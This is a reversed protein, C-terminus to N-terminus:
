QGHGIDDEGSRSPTDGASDTPQGDDGDLQTAENEAAEGASREPRQGSSDGDPTAESPSDARESGGTTTPEPTDDPANPSVAPVDVADLAAQIVDAKETGEITAETTLVLRHSMTANALRKVDDPTSYRRGAIVASARVAEFVRQVGRPSVGIETRDDERTARALDVIYRRVKTDVRIDEACEQLARVTEPDVVPDVSPSLTRRNARRDLLGMEGEVDPYAMSTKVSFRDRQAEPLQFTGEQEIPNQTAIVVFPTPLPHTTGDVSVQREEMSELLASQTKPPARNIEDALVVNSFVPGQAFEFEREHENYVNSGTVDAPLLDPTFQIRTFELGLAEALVRALATKGTGPVDEVLVHGRAIVGALTEFLVRREVVVAEEVREVINLCHESASAVSLDSSLGAM